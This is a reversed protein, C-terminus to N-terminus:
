AAPGPPRLLDLLQDRTFLKALGPDDEAVVQDLVHRKSAIIAAIKEELTGETILKVVQVARQQGIRHVRDTAQDERAANWWRDYHVVVSGGVLDIGTGGAKLSGLFVRCDPDRNFRDVIEGRRVSGGSSGTLTAFGVGLGTLHRQMLEIMGLFQSFVVVKLGSGLTEDLIERFLDWKGSRWQEVDDLRGLALCPHDCIRKLLNLLAFVHIYPVPGAAAVLERALADGRGAIADRYLKVQDDSLACTRLDEIKDPLEALVTSKLRRLVFPSIARRLEALRLDDSWALGLGQQAAAGQAPRADRGYRRTFDADSGFYGPLVLDFLAKLDGTANEIPTGTLGLRMEARLGGAARFAQTGPNKLHHAEDFVAVTFAVRSLEEAERRLVGYSTVLVDGPRLLALSDESRDSGHHIVARLGPAHERLKNRWHSIVSTPCVVLFPATARGDELLSALLAMVQHTKGLGMDDCLLGSLGNDALFRLWEVGLRQYPRLPSALAGLPGLPDRPRQGLLTGLPAAAGRAADGAIALPRGLLAQLRLLELAPIALRDSDPPTAPLGAGGAGAETVEVLRDLHDFAPAHLDIWGDPTELFPLGGRRAALLDALSLSHNGFGYEMALWYWSRAAAEGSAQIWDIEKWIRRNRLPADLVVRGQVVEERHEALFGPIQCRSLKLHAPARFKREKGPRELEALVGLERLYVLSGYRFKDVEAQFLYREGGAAQIARIAPRVVVEDLDFRTEAGVHLISQLPLPSIALDEQEPFAQALLRLAPQVSGRPVGVRVVPEGQWRYTLTFRGSGTDIAPHFSGERDEFERVCHYALRHWFSEEWAQGQTKAGREALEREAKTRQFLALRDLLRARDFAADSPAMKGARELFRVQAGSGDLYSALEEGGGGTIRIAARGDVEVRSVLVAACGIGSEAFLIKALRYWVTAAFMEQWAAGGLHRKLEGLARGLDRLHDCTRKQSDACTCSRLPLRSGPVEGIHVASASGRAGEAPVLGVGSRWLELHSFRQAPPLSGSM